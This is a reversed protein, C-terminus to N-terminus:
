LTLSKHTACFMICVTDEPSYFGIKRSVYFTTGIFVLQMCIVVLIISLLSSMDINLDGSGFTDCFTSYIIMLLIGKGIQGFPPQATTLWQKVSGSRRLVQGIIIPCVVTMTLTKMVKAMPVDGSDGMMMLLLM